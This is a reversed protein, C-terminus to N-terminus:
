REHEADSAAAEGRRRWSRCSCRRRPSRATAARDARVARHRGSRRVGVDARPRSRWTASGAAAAATVRPGFWGEDIIQDRSVVWADDGYSAEAGRRAPRRRQGPRAHLWRFRGEGSQSDVVHALVDSRSAVRQRRRRGPRPRRHRAAGRGAPLVDLLDGVLRDVACLEADYHEGLGYEHAVKDIGDYYAYVFPEGAGLLSRVEAVLTSPM